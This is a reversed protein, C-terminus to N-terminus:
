LVISLYSPAEGLDGTYNNEKTLTPLTDIYSGDSLEITPDISNPVVVGKPLEYIYTYGGNETKSKTGNTLKVNNGSWQLTASLTLYGSSVDVLKLTPHETDLVLELRGHPKPKEFPVVTDGNVQMTQGTFVNEFTGDDPRDGYWKGGYEFGTAVM